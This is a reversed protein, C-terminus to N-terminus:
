EAILSKKRGRVGQLFLSSYGRSSAEMMISAFPQGTLMLTTSRNDCEWFSRPADIGGDFILSAGKESTSLFASWEGKQSKLFLLGGGSSELSEHGSYDSGQLGALSKGDKDFINLLATSHKEHVVLKVRMNSKEDFLWLGAEVSDVELTARPNGDSDRIVLKKTEVVKPVILPKVKEILLFSIILLLLVGSIVVWFRNVRELRKLRQILKDTSQQEM